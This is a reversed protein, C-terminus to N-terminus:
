TKIPEHLPNRQNLALGAVTYFLQSMTLLVGWSSMEIFNPDFYLNKKEFFHISFFDDAKHEPM